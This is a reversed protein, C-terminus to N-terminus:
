HKVKNKAQADPEAGIMLIFADLMAKLNKNNLGMRRQVQIGSSLSTLLLTLEASSIPSQLNGAVKANTFMKEFAARILKCQTNALQFLEDDVDKFEVLSNVILCGNRSRSGSKTKLNKSFYTYIADAPNDFESIKPLLAELDQAYLEFCSIFLKRKDGFAGYFSSRSLGTCKLLQPLNTVTYGQQWFLDLSNELLETRNYQQPRAM